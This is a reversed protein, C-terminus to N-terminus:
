LQPNLDNHHIVGGGVVRGHLHGAEDLLASPLADGVRLVNGIWM